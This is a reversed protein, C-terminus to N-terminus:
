LTGPELQNRHFFSASDDQAVTGGAEEVGDVLAESFLEGAQDLAGATGRRVATTPEEFAGSAGIAAETGV